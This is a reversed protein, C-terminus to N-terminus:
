RSSQVAVRAGDIVVAVAGHQDTRWVAYGQRRLTAMTSPAPHGYDNDKGVSVVAVPARLAGLLAPDVNASGHHAVKVVDFRMQTQASSQPRLGTAGTTEARRLGLLVQHAAEREVDGLLLLDLGEDAVSLVISGNNPVSGADIRRAPWWVHAHFWGIALEDGAWLPDLPIGRARALGEVERVQHDPDRVPSVLIRDVRRGHLAGPLGDVHDAHFHTLVVATLHDVHLRSLCRDILRPDPGADVLVASTPGSRLVLGDGQGVDCAVLVWAAPPWTVVATPLTGAVALLTASMSALPHRRVLHAWWRGTVLVALTLAALLVAGRPGDPWPAIGGPVQACRRAVGAIAMAPVGGVWVTVTAASPWVLALIATAVGGVTAPAVFPAALLNAAVGILSVSGQLLVVVPACMLQAAVPIALVMGLGELRDPLRRDLTAGWSRVFVLLGLTALSSLAFGYSRSLWPDVCLLGIVAAALVPLGSRDRALLVGVLGVGGMVAARLVSPEPRALVVFGAVALVGVWPRIRAPLGVLRSLTLVLVLVVAVNSGSVAVLHSMGTARMAETLDPPTRSTDGVVLGPLLGRADPPLQRSATALGARVHEAGRALLGPPSREQVPGLPRLVAVEPDAPAAPWLRGVVSVSERWRLGAWEQGGHVVVQASTGAVLGRGQVRRVSLRVLVVPAGPSRSAIRVPDTAVTGSVTVVAREAALARLVSADRVAGHAASATLCLGCVAAGLALPPRGTGGVPGRPRRGLRQRRRGTGLWRGRCRGRLWRRRCREELRQCRRGARLRPRRRRGAMLPGAALLCGAALAARLTVPSGLTVAVLAWGAFAPGLLRLDLRPPEDVRRAVGRATRRGGFPARRLEDVRALWRAVLVSGAMRLSASPGPRHPAGARLPGRM